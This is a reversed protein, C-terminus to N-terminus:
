GAVGPGVSSPRGEFAAAAAGGHPGSPTAPALATLSQGGERAENVKAVWHTGKGLRQIAVWARWCALVVRRSQAPWFGRKLVLKTPPQDEPGSRLRWGFDLRGKSGASVEGKIRRDDGKGCEAGIGGLGQGIAGLNESLHGGVMSAVGVNTRKTLILRVSEFGDCVSKELLAMRAELRDFRMDLACLAPGVREGLYTGIREIVWELRSLRTEVRMVRDSIAQDVARVFSLKLGQLRSGLEGITKPAIDMEEGGIVAV